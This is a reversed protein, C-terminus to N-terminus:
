IFEPTPSTTGTGSYGQSRIVVFGVGGGGGGGGDDGEWGNDGDPFAKYAGDGGDGGGSTGTGGAAATASALSDEGTHGDTHNFAGEGGAGGNAALVGGQVLTVAPAELVVLGGSGGGGGGAEYGTAGGGAAGGAHVAGSVSISTKASLLVAGGGAGGDGVPSSGAGDAGACGGRLVGPLSVAGGSAGGAANGSNGWGGEGGDGGFGGGGGGAGDGSVVGGSTPATSSCAPPDAGPGKEVSNANRVSSANITGDVVITSWSAFIVPNAGVLRFTAGSAVTLQTVSVLRLQPGGGQAILQSAPNSKVGDPATLTNNDTNYIWTASAINLPGAPASISCPDFTIPKPLWSLCVNADPALKDPVLKDPVPMDPGVVSKDAISMDMSVVQDPDPTADLDGAGLDLSLEQGISDLPADQVSDITIQDTVPLVSDSAEVGSADFRCGALLLFPVLFSRVPVVSITSRDPWFELACLLPAVVV